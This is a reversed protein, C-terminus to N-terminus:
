DSLLSRVSGCFLNGCRRDFMVKARTRLPMSEKGDLGIFTHLPTFTIESPFPQRHSAHVELLDYTENFVVHYIFGNREGRMTICSNIHDAFANGSMFLGPSVTLTEERIYSEGGNKRCLTARVHLLRVSEVVAFPAQAGELSLHNGISGNVLHEVDLMIANQSPVKAVLDYYYTYIYADEDSYNFVMVVDNDACIVDLAIPSKGQIFQYNFINIISALTTAGRQLKIIPSDRIRSPSVIISDVNCKIRKESRLADVETDKITTREQLDRDTNYVYMTTTDLNYLCAM